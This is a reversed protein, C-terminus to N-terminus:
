KPSREQFPPLDELGAKEQEAKDDDDDDDDDTMMRETDNTTTTTSNLQELWYNTDQQVVTPPRAARVEGPRDVYEIVAMSANDGDRKKALKLIRTYGGARLQYRPGLIHIAKAVAQPTRVIQNLQRYANFLQPNSRKKVTTTTTENNNSPNNMMAVDISGSFAGLPTNRKVITVIKEAMSQVEKAKPVTTVIREHEILSTVM